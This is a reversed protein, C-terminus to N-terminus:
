AADRRRPVGLGQRDEASAETQEEVDQFSRAITGVIREKWYLLEPQREEPLVSTLNAILANLRRAVQVSVAGYYRIEDLAL